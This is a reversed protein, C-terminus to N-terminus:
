PNLHQMAQRIQPNSPDIELARRLLRMAEQKRGTEGLLRALSVSAGISGPNAELAARFQKEAGAADRRILHINGLNALAADNAPRLELATRFFREADAYQGRRALLMGMFQLADSKHVNSGLKSAESALRWAEEGRGEVNAVAALGLLSTVRNEASPAFVRSEADVAAQFEARAKATERAEFYLRGLNNRMPAADPSAAVTATYFTRNNAWVPNRAMTLVAWFGAVCAVAVAAARKDHLFTFGKAALLVCFGMSPIYLYREAFINTGADGLRLVPTLAVVVFAALFGFTRLRRRWLSWVLWLLGSLLLAPLVWEVPPLRSFPRFVHFANQPYPILLMQLYRGAFYLMTLLRDPLGIALPVATRSFEGLAHVRLVLYGALVAAFGAWDRWRARVVAAASGDVTALDLLAVILPLTLAMEKFLLAAAFCALAGGWWLGARYASSHARLYAALALFYFLGCGVDTVGAIWTVSETHIPHAAFLIGAWMAVAPAALLEQAFWVVALSALVHLFLSILHYPVPSLGGLAHGTMYAVTQLPRYYNTQTGASRFAWFNETFASGLAAFGRIRPNQVIQVTDDYVFAYSVSQVYCACALACVAAVHWWRIGTRPLPNRPPAPKGPKPAKRSM